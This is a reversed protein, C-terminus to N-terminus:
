YLYQNSLLPQLETIKRKVQLYTKWKVTKRIKIKKVKQHRPLQGLKLMWLKNLLKQYNVITAISLHDKM